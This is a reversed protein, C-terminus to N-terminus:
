HQIPAKPKRGPPKKVLSKKWTLVDEKLYVPNHAVEGVSKPGRGKSIYYRLASPTIGAVRAADVGTLPVDVKQSMYM